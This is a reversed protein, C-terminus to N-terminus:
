IFYAIVLFAFIKLKREYLLSSSCFLHSRFTSPSIKPIGPSWWFPSSFCSFFFVHDFQGISMHSLIIFGNQLILTHCMVTFNPKNLPMLFSPLKWYWPKSILSLFKSVDLFGSGLQVKLQWEKTVSFRVQHSKVWRLCATAQSPHWLLKVISQGQFMTVVNIEKQSCLISFKEWNHSVSKRNNTQLDEFSSFNGKKIQSQVQKWIGDTINEFEM